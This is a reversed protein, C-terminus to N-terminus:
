DSGEGWRLSRARKMQERALEHQGKRESLSAMAEFLAPDEKRFSSAKNLAEEAEALDSDLYILGRELWYDYTKRKWRGYMSDSVRRASKLDNLVTRYTRSLMTSAQVDGSGVSSEAERMTGKSMDDMGMDHYHEALSCYAEPDSRDGAIIGRYLDVARQSGNKIMGLIQARKVLVKNSSRPYREIYIGLVEQARELEGFIELNMSLLMLIERNEEYGVTMPEIRELIKSASTYDGADSLERAQKLLESVKGEQGATLSVKRAGQVKMLAPLLVYSIDM